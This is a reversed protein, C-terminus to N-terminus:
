DNKLDLNNIYENAQETGGIVLKGESNIWGGKEHHDGPLAYQYGDVFANFILQKDNM